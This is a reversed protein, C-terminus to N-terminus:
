ITTPYGFGDTTIDLTTLIAQEFWVSDAIYLLQCACVFIISNTLYGVEIYQKAAHAYNIVAWFCGQDFNM